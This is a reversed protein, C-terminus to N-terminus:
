TTEQERRARATESVEGNFKRSKNGFGRGSKIGLHKKAIRDTKARVKVDDATKRRHAQRLAPRLNAEEHKGGNCLAIVHDVDWAEGPQIKRGTLHCIGGHDRFVRLRVRDPIKADDTAGQWNDTSRTM